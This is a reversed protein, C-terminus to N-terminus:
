QLFFDYLTQLYAKGNQLETNLLNTDQITSSSLRKNIGDYIINGQPVVWGFGMNTEYYAFEKSYPNFINKGRYADCDVVGMQAALTPYIDIQSCITSCVKGTYASDLAGGMWLMPVHMYEASNVYHNMYTAHSHDSVIVFLTSDYWPQTKCREIYQYLEYDYYIVSNLYPLNDMDWTLQPVKKPEDYPAHSSATFLFSFFPQQMTQLDKYSEAFLYEDPISLQGRPYETPFDKDEMIKNFENWLIFARINGYRLDGAFYYSTNYGMSNFMKPM